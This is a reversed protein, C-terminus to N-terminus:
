SVLFARRFAVRPPVKPFPAAMTGRAFTYGVHETRPNFRPKDNSADGDSKRNSLVTKSSITTLRRYALSNSACKVARVSEVGGTDRDSDM